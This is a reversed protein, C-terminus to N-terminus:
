IGFPLLGKLIGGIGGTGMLSQFWSPKSAKIASVQNQGSVQQFTIARSTTFDQVREDSAIKSRAVDLAELQTQEQSDIARMGLTLATQNTQTSILRKTDEQSLGLIRTNELQKNNLNYSYDQGQLAVNEDSTIKALGVNEDSRIKSLSIVRQADVAALNTQGGLTASITDVGARLRAIDVQSNINAISVASAANAQQAALNAQAYDTTQSKTGGSTSKAIVYFVVFTVIAGIIVSPKKLYEAYDSISM